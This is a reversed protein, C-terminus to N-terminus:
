NKNWLSEVFGVLEKLEKEMGKYSTLFIQDFMSKEREIDERSTMRYGGAIPTGAASRSAILLCEDTIIPIRLFGTDVCSILPGKRGDGGWISKICNIVEERFQERQGIEVIEDIKDIYRQTNRLIIKVSDREKAALNLIFQKVERDFNPMGFILDRKAFYWDPHLFLPGVYICRYGSIANQVQLSAANLYESRSKLNSIYASSFRNERSLYDKMTKCMNSSLMKNHAMRHHIACLILLNHYENNSPNEDIHHIDLGVERNCQPVPCKIGCELMLRDRIEKPVAVRKKKVM